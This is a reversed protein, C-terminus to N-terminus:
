YVKTIKSTLKTFMPILHEPPPAGGEKLHENISSGLTKFHVTPKIISGLGNARLWDFAEDEADKNISPYTDVVLSINALTEGNDGRPSFKDLEENDLLSGLKGAVVDINSGVVSDWQKIYQRIKHSRVYFKALTNKDAGNVDIPCGFPIGNLECDRLKVTALESLERLVGIPYDSAFGLADLISNVLGLAQNESLDASSIAQGEAVNIKVGEDTPHVAVKGDFLEM